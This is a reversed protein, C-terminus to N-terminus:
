YMLDVTKLRVLIKHEMTVKLKSRSVGFNIPTMNTDYKLLDGILPDRFEDQTSSSFGFQNPVM